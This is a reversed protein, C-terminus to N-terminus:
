SFLFFLFFFLPFNYGVGVRTLISKGNLCLHCNFYVLHVKFDTNSQADSMLVAKKTYNDNNLYDFHEM